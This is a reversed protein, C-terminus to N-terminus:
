RAAEISTEEELMRRRADRVASIARAYSEGDERGALFPTVVEDLVRALGRSLRRRVEGYGKVMTALEAVECALEEDLLATELVVGEWRAMLASERQYRLSSLRLFRLRGLTWV